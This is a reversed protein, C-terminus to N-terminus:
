EDCITVDSFVAEGELAAHHNGAADIIVSGSGDLHWLFLTADGDTASDYAFVEQPTFDAVYRVANSVRIEDMFGTFSYRPEQESNLLADRGFFLRSDNQKMSPPAAEEIFTGDVFLRARDFNDSYVVAVHVWEDPPVPADGALVLTGDIEFLPTGPELTSHSIGALAFLYGNTELTRKSMIVAYKGGPLNSARIWAEITYDTNRLDLPSTYFVEIWSSDLITLDDPAGFFEVSGGECPEGIEVSSVGSDGTLEGDTPIAECTWTEGVETTGGPIAADVFATTAGDATWVYTYTVEDGDPDDSPVSVVCTMAEGARPVSPEIAVTPAGPARNEVVVDTDVVADANYPELGGCAALM